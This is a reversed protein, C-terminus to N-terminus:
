IAHTAEAVSTVICKSDGKYSSHPLKLSIFAIDTNKCM